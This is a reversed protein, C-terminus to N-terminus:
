ILPLPAATCYLSQVKALKEHREIDCAVTLVGSSKHIDLRHPDCSEQWKELTRIFRKEGDTMYKRPTRTELDLWKKYLKEINDIADKSRKWFIQASEFQKDTLGRPNHTEYASEWTERDRSLPTPSTPCQM